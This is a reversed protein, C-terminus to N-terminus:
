GRDSLTAIRSAAMYLPDREGLLDIVVNADLFLTSKM